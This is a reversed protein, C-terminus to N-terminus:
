LYGLLVNAWKKIQEISEESYKIKGYDERSPGVARSKRFNALAKYFAERDQESLLSAIEEIVADEPLPIFLDLHWMQRWLVSRLPLTVENFEQEERRKMRITNQKREPRSKILLGVALGVLLGALVLIPDTIHFPPM